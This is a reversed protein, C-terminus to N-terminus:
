PREKGHGSRKKIMHRVAMVPHHLIMRPGSFVMMARIRARMAPQYCQIECTDCTGRHHHPCRRTRNNAYVVLSACDECLRGDPSCVHRHARCYIRAMAELTKQDQELRRNEATMGGSRM